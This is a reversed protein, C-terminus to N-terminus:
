ASFVDATEDNTRVVGDKVLFVNEGTGEAVDGRDNLLIAEAFGRAVADQMALVSNAYHGCCKATAPLATSPFKRWPSITVRIGNEQGAGFYGGLRRLAILVHTPVTSLAPGAPDDERRLLGAAPYLGVHLENVRVSEVVAACLEEVNWRVDLGYTERPDCSASWTNASGSSRPVRRPRTPGSVKSLRRLRLAARARFPHVTVDDKPRIAGDFWYYPAIEMKALPPM